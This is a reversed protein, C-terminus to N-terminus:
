SKFLHGIGGYEAQSENEGEIIAARIQDPDLDIGFERPFDLDSSCFVEREPWRSALYRGLARLGELTPEFVAGDLANNIASAAVEYKGGAVETFRIFITTM